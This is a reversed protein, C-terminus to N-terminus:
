RSLLPGDTALPPRDVPRRAVLEAFVRGSPQPHEDGRLVELGAQELAEALRSTPWAWATTVRHDFPRLTAGSFFGVLVSGGPRLATSFRQLVDPVEAPDLHILSFWALVGGLSGPPQELRRLDGLRFPIDPHTRRAHAVFAPTADLGETQLGLTRLFATWHGPGCGADLVPGTLTRGWGTILARDGSSADDVSGFADIYRSAWSDYAVQVATLGDTSAAGDDM